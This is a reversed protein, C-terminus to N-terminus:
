NTGSPGRSCINSEPHLMTRLNLFANFKDMNLFSSKLSQNTTATENVREPTNTSKGSSAARTGRRGRGKPPKNKQREHWSEPYGYLSFCEDVQHRRHGCHSCSVDKCRPLVHQQVPEPEPEPDLKLEKSKDAQVNQQMPETKLEKSKAALQEEKTVLSYVENLDRLPDQSIISFRISSFRAQDLGMLFHHVREDEKEKEIYKAAHCSCDRMSKYSELEEWLKSLRGFYDKVSQGEQRCSRIMVKIEHVRVGNGVSFRRRLSEWLKCADTINAVTSRIEPDIAKLIWSVIILNTALWLTLDPSTLPKPISGDIFGIKQKAQLLNQINTSWETYNDEGLLVTSIFSVPIDSLQFYCSYTSSRSTDDDPPSIAINPESMTALLCM